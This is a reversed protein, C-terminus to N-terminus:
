GRALGEWIKLQVRARDLNHNARTVPYYNDGQLFDTLFRAAQELSIVRGALHLNAKEGPTLFGDTEQVYGRLMADVFETRVKVLDANPEDEAVATAVSRTLDGVDYLVTGDMVTDLDVVCLGEGTKEDFLVNGIKADNHAVRTPLAGQIRLAQIQGGEERAGLIQDVERRVEALRGIADETAAHELAALRAPTDHFGPLVEILERDLDHMMVHFRGFARGAQTAQEVTEAFELTRTGEIFKLLRWVGGRADRVYANGDRAPVLQLVRREPNRMARSLVVGNLHATVAQLNTMVALADSFVSPNLRQLLYSRDGLGSTVVVRFTDNIHGTGHRSVSQVDGPILFEPLIAPILSM